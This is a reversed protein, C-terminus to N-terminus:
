RSKRGARVLRQGAEALLTASHLSQTVSDHLERALRSREASIAKELESQRLAEQTKILEAQQKQSVERAAEAERIVVIFAALLFYIAGYVFVLPVGVESGLGLLLLISTIVTFAGTILLGNRTPFRNMVQVVLPCYLVAWFDVNPTISALIGIIATQAILYINTLNRKRQFYLPEAFLLVLYAGVLLSISIIREDFFFWIITRIITSIALTYTAFYTIFLTRRAMQLGKM